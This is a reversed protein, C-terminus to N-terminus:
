AGVGALFENRLRLMLRQGASSRGTAFLGDDLVQQGDPLARWSADAPEAYGM